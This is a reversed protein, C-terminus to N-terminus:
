CAVKGNEQVRALLDPHRALADCWQRTMYDYLRMDYRNIDEMRRMLTVNAVIRAKEKAGHSRRTRELTYTMNLRFERLMAEVSVVYEEHLGVYFMRDLATVARAYVAETVTVNRYPFSDAGLMRTQINHYEPMGLYEEFTVKPRRGKKIDSFWPRVKYFDNNPSHGPYFWASMIRSLPDRALILSPLNQKFVLKTRPFHTVCGKLSQCSKENICLGPNTCCDTANTRECQVARLLSM